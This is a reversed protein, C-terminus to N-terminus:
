PRAPPRHGATLRGALDGVRDRMTIGAGMVDVDFEDELLAALEVLGVSDLALDALTTDPGIEEAPVSFQTSLLAVVKAVASQEDM